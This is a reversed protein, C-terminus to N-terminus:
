YEMDAQILQLQKIRVCSKPQKYKGSYSDFLPLTNAVEAHWLIERLSYFMLGNFMSGMEWGHLM